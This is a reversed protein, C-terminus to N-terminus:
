RGEIDSIGFPVRRPSVKTSQRIICQEKGPGLFFPSRVVRIGFAGDLM